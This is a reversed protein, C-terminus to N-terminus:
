LGFAFYGKLGNEYIGEILVGGNKNSLKEVLQDVDHVPQKNIKTIIFGEKIGSGRLKGGTMEIVKVGNGVGLKRKEDDNIQVFKAGLIKHVQNTEKKIIETSGYKNRLTVPVELEKDMRKVVVNVRDGPRFKAMQENFDPVDKINKNGVQLIVDGKQIGSKEAAGGENVDHVYIGNLDNLNLDSALEENINHLSIGLFARQVEGYVLLDDVVKKVINVPIAFSYGTFSGTNSKIATNIGILEGNSSVLAGGSNGPNVAADTQIFSELAPLGNRYDNKVIDIDRGKASVIGATVTSTLNYPNGVALVWEGIKLQDSNGYVIYPFDQGNIKLLALDSSPDSGVLEAKFTTKNNLTVEIREADRIVHNNTVIYGDSAVIVGSGTSIQAETRPQYSRPGFFFDQLPNWYYHGPTTRLITTKVHVVADLSSEAASTFDVTNEVAMSKFNAYQAHSNSPENLSVDVTNRQKSTDKTLAWMVVGGILSAFVLKILEKM